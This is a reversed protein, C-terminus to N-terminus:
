PLQLHHPKPQDQKWCLMGCTPPTSATDVWVAWLQTDQEAVPWRRPMGDLFKRIIPAKERGLIGDYPGSMGVDTCYATGENLIRLDSTPTHTHTGLVAACRGNLYWGLGIKESTAEAHIEVLVTDCDRLLKLAKDAARFPCNSKMKMFERGLLTVIGLRGKDNELKLLRKGPCSKPLNFARSVNQTNEIVETFDRRDWVHDGLTIANVGKNQLEEVIKLTIGSGGAANEGNAIVFDLNLQEKLPAVCQGVWNRGPRGVIDGIFLFRM